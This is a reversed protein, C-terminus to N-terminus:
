NQMTIENIHLILAQRRQTDPNGHRICRFYMSTIRGGYDHHTMRTRYIRSFIEFNQSFLTWGKSSHLLLTSMNCRRTGDPYGGKHPRTHECVYMCPNENQLIVHLTFRFIGLSGGHTHALSNVNRRAIQQFYIDRPLVGNKDRTLQLMITTFAEFKECLPSLLM